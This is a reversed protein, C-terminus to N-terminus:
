ITLRGHLLFLMMWFSFLPAFHYFKIHCVVNTTWPHLMICTKVQEREAKQLDSQV